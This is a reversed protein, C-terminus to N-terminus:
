NGAVTVDEVVVSPAATSGFTEVDAGVASIRKLFDLLNGAITVAAVPGALEGGRVAVGKAGLSFDGSVPNLTHLGMLETVFFGNAVDRLLADRSRSGPLLLLNSTGVDPLGGLGRSANGTSRVGDKAAYQLNYLYACAVGDQILPTRGTPVGEGDFLSSATMGPVRGDDILTVVSGAVTEGIKGAVMSRGKHIDSACFLEGIEDMLSASIEPDLLLTYKGTPLPTGGLVAAARDVALRAYSPADLAGLSRASKGYGGMECAEGEQLVVAVGCSASTAVKWGAAGTTAAYFSRGVGDHFSAARVSVVRADRRQAAATMERCAEMRYAPSIGRGIEEDYQRLATDDTELVGDYLAIGDEPEAALCNKGSWEILDSVADRSLSNSWAVGQRGDSAICRVGIGGSIGSGNEEMEGDRLSLDHSVSSFYMADAGTIGDVAILRDLAWAVLAEVHEREPIGGTM